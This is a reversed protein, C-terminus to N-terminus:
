AFAQKGSLWEEDKGYWEGGVKKDFSIEVITFDTLVESIGANQEGCSSSVRM